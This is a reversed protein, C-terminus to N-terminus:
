HIHHLAVLWRWLAGGGFWVAGAVALAALLVLWWPSKRGTDSNM